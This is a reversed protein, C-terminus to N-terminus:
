TRLLQKNNRDLIRNGHDTPTATENSHYIDLEQDHVHNTTYGSVMM